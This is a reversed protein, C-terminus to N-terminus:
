QQQDGKMWMSGQAIIAKSHAVKLQDLTIVQETNDSLRWLTETLGHDEGARIASLMRRQSDEDGDFLMGDVEVVIGSVSAHRQARFITEEIPVGGFSISTMAEEVAQIPPRIPEKASHESLEAEYMAPTFGDIYAEDIDTDPDDSIFQGDKDRAREPRKDEVIKLQEVWEKHSEFWDWQLELLYKGVFMEIVHRKSPNAAHKNLVLEVDSLPRTEPRDMEVTVGDDGISYFLDDYDGMTEIRESM